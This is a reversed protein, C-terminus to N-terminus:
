RDTTLLDRLTQDPPPAPAGFFLEFARAAQGVLMTLGDVGHGGGSRGAALFATEAPTTVLDFITAGAAHRRVSDLLNQPM